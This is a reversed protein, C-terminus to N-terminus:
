ITPLTLIYVRLVCISMQEGEQRQTHVEIFLPPTPHIYTIPDSFNVKCRAVILGVVNVHFTIKSKEM